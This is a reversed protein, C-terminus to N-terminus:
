LCFCLSGVARASVPLHKDELVSARAYGVYPSIVTIRKASSRRLCSVLLLLEMYNDNVPSSTSQIVYVDKGRVNENIQINAEGDAFQKVDCKGLKV